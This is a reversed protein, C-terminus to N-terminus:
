VHVYYNYTICERCETSLSHRATVSHTNQLNIDMYMYRCAHVTCNTHVCMSTHMYLTYVYVNKVHLHEILTECITVFM